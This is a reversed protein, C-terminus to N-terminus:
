FMEDIPTDESEEFSAAAHQQAQVAAKRRRLRTKPSSTTTGDLLSRLDEVVTELESAQEGLMHASAASEESVAANSQVVGDIQALAQNIESIANAQSRSLENIESIKSNVSTVSETIEQLMTVTTGCHSSGERASNLAMRISEATEGAAKGSREALNRVEEAVVAFRKGHEGAGEAEIAANLALLNTQFAIDEIAKLVNSVSTTSDEIKGMANKMCSMSQDGERVKEQASGALRAVEEARTANIEASSAVEEVTATTQVLSAANKQVGEAVDQAAQAIQSSASAISESGEALRRIAASLPRTISRGVFFGLVGLALVVFVAVNQATYLTGLKNDSATQFAGTATNMLKLLKVNNAVLFTLAERAKPSEPKTAPDVLLDTKKKIQAWLVYGEHLAKKVAEDEAADLKCTEMKGNLTEGGNILAELTRDFLGATKELSSRWKERTKAETAASLLLAEKTMRQSLMRQRGTLNIQLGDAKKQDLLVSTVIVLVVPILVFTGVLTNLKLNLSLRM